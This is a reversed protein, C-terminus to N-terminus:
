GNFYDVMGYTNLVDQTAPSQQILMFQKGARQAERKALYLIQFGATDMESVQSLDLEIKSINNVVDLLQQKAEAASYITLDGEITVRGTRRKKTVTINM